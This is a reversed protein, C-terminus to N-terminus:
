AQSQLAWQREAAAQGLGLSGWGAWHGWKALLDGVPDAPSVAVLLHLVPLLAFVGAGTDRTPGTIPLIAM